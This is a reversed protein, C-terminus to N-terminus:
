SVEFAGRLWVPTGTDLTVVDFRCPPEQRLRALYQRSAAVIRAQKRPSVSEAGGGFHASSRMRVEIFVLVPGDRAVLDIEGLRTRFNRGVIELGRDTLFRAAADEAAGGAAQAPTVSGTALRQTM